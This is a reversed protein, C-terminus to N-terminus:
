STLTSLKERMANEAKSKANKRLNELRGDLSADFVTDGVRVVLGGLISPDVNTTLSVDAKLLSSLRDRLGNISHDELPTASTIVVPLRGKAEDRLKIVASLISPLMPLRRRRAIVKLAKLLCPEAANGFARDILAVKDDVSRKPDAFLGSLSPQKDIVDAVLSQLQEVVVDVKGEAEAAALLAKAYVQGVYQSEDDFVTEMSANSDAM